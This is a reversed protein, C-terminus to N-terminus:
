YAGTDWVDKQQQRKRKKEEVEPSEAKATADNKEIRSEEM